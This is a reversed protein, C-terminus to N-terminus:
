KKYYYFCDDDYLGTRPGTDTFHWSQTVPVLLRKLQFDLRHSAPNTLVLFYLIRYYYCYTCKYTYTYLSFFLSSFCRALTLTVVMWISDWLWCILSLLLCQLYYTENIGFFIEGLVDEQSGEVGAVAAVGRPSLSVGGNQWVHSTFM